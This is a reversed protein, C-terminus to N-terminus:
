KSKIALSLADLCSSGHIQTEPKTILIDTIVEQPINLEDHNDDGNLSLQDDSKILKMGQYNDENPDINSNSLNSTNMVDDVSIDKIDGGMISKKAKFGATQSVISGKKGTVTKNLKDAPKNVIIKKGTKAITPTLDRKINKVDPKLIKANTSKIPTKNNERASVNIPTKPREITRMTKIPTIPRLDKKEPKGVVKEVIDTKAENIFNGVTKSIYLFDLKMVELDNIDNQAKNILNDLNSNFLNQIYKGLTTKKDM